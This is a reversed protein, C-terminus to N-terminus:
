GQPAELAEPAGRHAVGSASRLSRPYNSGREKRSIRVIVPIADRSKTRRRDHDRLDRFRLEITMGAKLRSGNRLRVQPQHISGPELGPHRNLICSWRLTAPLM